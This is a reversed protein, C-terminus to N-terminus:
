EIRKYTFKLFIKEAGVPPPYAGRAGGGRVSAVYGITYLM